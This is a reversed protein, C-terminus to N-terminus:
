FWTKPTIEEYIMTRRSQKTPRKGAFSTFGGPADHPASCPLESHAARRHGLAVLYPGIPPDHNSPCFMPIKLTTKQTKPIISRIPYSPIWPSWHSNPSSHSTSQHYPNVTSQGHVTNYYIIYPSVVHSIPIYLMIYCPIPHNPSKKKCGQIAAAKGSLTAWGPPFQCSEIPHSSCVGTVLKLVLSM